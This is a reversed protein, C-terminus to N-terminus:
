MGSQSMSFHTATMAQWGSETYQDFTRTTGSDDDVSLECAGISNRYWEGWGVSVTFEEAGNCDKTNFYDSDSPHQTFPRNKLRSARFYFVLKLKEKEKKKGSVKYGEGKM